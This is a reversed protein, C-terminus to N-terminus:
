SRMRLAIPLARPTSDIRAAITLADPNLERVANLMPGARDYAAIRALYAKTLATATTKRTAIAARLDDVTANEVCVPASPPAAIVNGSALCLALAVSIRRYIM